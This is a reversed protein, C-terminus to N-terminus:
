GAGCLLLEEAGYVKDEGCNECPYKRADPECEGHEAGCATCFGIYEGSKIAAMLRKETIKKKRAMM